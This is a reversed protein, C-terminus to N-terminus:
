KETVLSQAGRQECRCSGLLSVILEERDMHNRWRARAGADPRSRALGRSIGTMSVHYCYPCVGGDGVTLGYSATGGIWEEWKRRAWEENLKEGTDQDRNKPREPLQYLGGGHYIPKRRRFPWIM